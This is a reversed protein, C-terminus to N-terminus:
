TTRTLPALPLPTKPERPLDTAAANLAKPRGEPRLNPARSGVELALDQAGPDRFRPM